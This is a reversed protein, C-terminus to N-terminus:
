TAFDPILPRDLVKRLHLALIEQGQGEVDDELATCGGSGIVGAIGAGAFCAPCDPQLEM